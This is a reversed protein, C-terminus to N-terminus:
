GAKRDLLKDVSESGSLTLKKPKFLLHAILEKPLGVRKPRGLTTKNM